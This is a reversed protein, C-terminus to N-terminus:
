EAAPEGDGLGMIKYVAAPERASTLWSLLHLAASLRISAPLNTDYAMYRLTQQCSQGPACNPPLEDDAPEEVRAAGGGPVLRLLPRPTAGPAAAPADQPSTEPM